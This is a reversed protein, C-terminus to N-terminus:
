LSAQSVGEAYKPENVIGRLLVLQDVTSAGLMSKMLWNPVQIPSSIIIEYSVQTKGDDQAIFQYKGEITEKEAQESASKGGLTEVDKFHYTISKLDESIEVRCKLTSVRDPLPWPLDTVTKIYWNSKDVAKTKEMSKIQKRWRYAEPYDVVLALVSQPSQDVHTVAKIARANEQGPVGRTYVSVENREESLVWDKSSFDVALLAGSQFALFVAVLLVSLKKNKM